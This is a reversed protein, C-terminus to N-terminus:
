WFSALGSCFAANSRECFSCLYSECASGRPFLLLNVVSARLFLSSVSFFSRRANARSFAKRKEKETNEKAGHHLKEKKGRGRAEAHM